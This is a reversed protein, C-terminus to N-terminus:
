DDAKATIALISLFLFHFRHMKWVFCQIHQKFLMKAVWVYSKVWWWSLKGWKEDFIENIIRTWAISPFELFSLFVFLNIIGKRRSNWENSLWDDYHNLIFPFHRRFLNVPLEGSTLFIWKVNVYNANSVSPSFNSRTVFCWSVSRGDIM